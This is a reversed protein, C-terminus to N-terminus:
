LEVMAKIVGTEPNLWSEFTDIMEDFPAHHTIFTETEIEGKQMGEIVYQMDERTANRSSLLTMERKHFEPDSFSIDAKVLSVLVYTGGHAVYQFANMMSKPNGTADFVVSPYEGDTLARLQEDVDQLANATDHVGLKDKCYALREDNIDMAIVRAGAMRAFQMAGMGIPGAGIVLATQGKQIKARRVAHAGIALCEVIAMQDLGLGDAKLLNEVPMTIQDCMGGDQQIGIIKLSVCCNPRGQRCAVCTGCSLYPVVVVADGAAFGHDGADVELIEASLEHGLIRPYTFYPQNGKYAHLDTGCIGICKVRLLAEGPKRIPEPDERLLFQDPKECVITRLIFRRHPDHFNVDSLPSLIFKGAAPNLYFV